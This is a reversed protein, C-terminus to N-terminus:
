AVAVPRGPLRQPRHCVHPRAPGGVGPSPRLSSREFRSILDPVCKCTSISICRPVGGTGAKTQIEPQTGRLNGPSRPAYRLGTLCPRLQVVIPQDLTGSLVIREFSIQVELGTISPRQNARIPGPLRRLCPRVSLGAEAVRRDSPYEGGAGHTEALLSPSTDAPFRGAEM